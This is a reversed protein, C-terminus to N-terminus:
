VPVQSRMDIPVRDDRGVMIVHREFLVAAAIKPNM